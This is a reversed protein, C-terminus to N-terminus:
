ATTRPRPCTSARSTGARSRWRWGAPSRRIPATAPRIVGAASGSEQSAVIFNLAKQAPEKLAPDQTMGYAECLALSAIGHSYLWGAASDAKQPVYLDGNEQQHAVLWAIARQVSERYRHERHTYGAGQLAILALATAATDSTMSATESEYGIRGAGYRDLSWSGDPMQHRVLFSVGDEVAQETQPSL